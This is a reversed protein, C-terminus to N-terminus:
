ATAFAATGQNPSERVRRRPAAAPGPLPRSELTWSGAYFIRLTRYSEQIGAGEQGPVASLNKFSPRPFSPPLRDPFLTNQELRGQDFRVGAHTVDVGM